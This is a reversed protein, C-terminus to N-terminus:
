VDAAAATIGPTNPDNCPGRHGARKPGSSMPRVPAPLWLRLSPPHQSARPPFPDLEAKEM